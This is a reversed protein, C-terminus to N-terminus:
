ESMQKRGGCLGGDSLPQHLVPQKIYKLARMDTVGAQAGGCLGGDSLLHHLVPQKIYNLARACRQCGSAGGVSIGMLCSITIHLSSSTTSRACMESM